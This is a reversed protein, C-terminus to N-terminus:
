LSLMSLSNKSNHICIKAIQNQLNSTSQNQNFYKSCIFHKKWAIKNNHNYMYTRRGVQTCLIISHTCELKVLEESNSFKFSEEWHVLKYTHIKYLYDLKAVKFTVINVGWPLGEGGRGGKLMWLQRQMHGIYFWEFYKQSFCTCRSHIVMLVEVRFGLGHALFWIDRVGFLGGRIDLDACFLFSSHCQDYINIFYKHTFKALDVHIIKVDSPHSSKITITHKLVVSMIM